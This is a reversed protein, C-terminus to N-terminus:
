GHSHVSQAQQWGRGMGGWLPSPTPEAAPAFDHWLCLADGEGKHPPIPLPHALHM